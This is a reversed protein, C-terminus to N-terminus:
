APMVSFYWAYFATWVALLIALRARVGIHRSLLGSIAGTLVAVLLFRPLRAFFTALLFLFLASGQEGAAAAFLKYPTGGFSGALMGLFGDAAWIDDVQAMLTPSIAPLANMLHALAAPEHAAWAYTVAGGLTASGAAVLAALLGARTGSRVAIWSIPVDAVIFWLIAEATSWGAVLWLPLTLGLARIFALLAILSM